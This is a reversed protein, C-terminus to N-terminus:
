RRARRRLTWGRQEGYAAGDPIEEEAKVSLLSVIEPAMYAETGTCSTALGRAAAAAAAAAGETQQPQQDAAILLEQARAASAHPGVGAKACGFDTLILHGEGDLLLNEPKLDRHM